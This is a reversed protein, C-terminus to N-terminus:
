QKKWHSLDRKLKDEIASINENIYKITSTNDFVLPDKKDTVFVRNMKAHYLPKIGIHECIDFIYKEPNDVMDDYFM